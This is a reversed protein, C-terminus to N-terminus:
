RLLTIAGKYPQPTVNNLWVITLDYVYVGVPAPKGKYEGDWVFNLDNSEFVKEGSRDYVNVQVIRMAQKNGFIQWQDNNGDNNPTFVNPVFVQYDPVVAVNVSAYAHCGNTDTVEVNCATSYNGSFTTSACDGCSLGDVPSWTYNLPGSQNTNATLVVSKGLDVSATGPTIFAQFWEPESNVVLLTSIVSDCNNVTNLQTVFTGGGTVVSGDPLVYKQKSCITDTVTQNYTPNVQLLTTILSDCGNITNLHSDYSGSTSQTIGDPL